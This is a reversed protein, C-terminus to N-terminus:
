FGFLVLFLLSLFAGKFTLRASVRRTAKHDAAILTLLTLACKGGRHVIMLQFCQTKLTKLYWISNRWAVRTKDAATNQSRCFCHRYSQHLAKWCFMQGWGGGTKFAFFLTFSSPRCLIFRCSKKEQERGKPGCKDGRTKYDSLSPKLVASPDKGSGLSHTRPALDGRPASTPPSSRLVGLVQNGNAECVPRKIDKLSGSGPQTCGKM